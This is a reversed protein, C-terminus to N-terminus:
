IIMNIPILVNLETNNNLFMQIQHNDYKKLVYKISGITTTKNVSINFSPVKDIIVLIEM